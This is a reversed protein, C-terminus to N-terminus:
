FATEAVRVANAMLTFTLNKAPLFPMVAGDVVFLNDIDYSHCQPSVAWATRRASMPLTGSYHVSSGMPRVHTMGPIFPVGLERFFGRARRCTERILRAEDPSSRYRMLLAPWGHADISERALTLFNYDRRWDCFNLNLVALSSRLSRFVGMASKLDLPLGSFIPHTLATKLTTIQGHVYRDPSAGELGVALQHYQYSQPNYSRGLMSLNCLPALVQRNDMLGALRIIEKRSRYVSRLVLNSTSLTGCALVYADASFRVEPGGDVPYCVLSEISGSTALDFHSAFVNPVHEFNAYGLCEGLTLSPTYFAGTPCGWLCRGCRTCSRREGLPHSLVAQRSRGLRAAYKKSLRQRRRSYAELVLAASEDLEVMPSLNDHVPFCASLDDQAGAVGIRRAVEAYYPAIDSYSFPFERLEDDNFPYSGGTWSQALGGAAFSVLPTLGDEIASFWSPREFVYDKSPPLGYYEKEAGPEPSPVKIAQYRSGLFYGVPDKLRGKLGLFDADPLVPAAGTHGVSLMTVSHTKRVASLAFHVGSAGSGVVLIKV